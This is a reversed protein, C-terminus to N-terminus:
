FFSTIGKVNEVVEKGCGSCTYKVDLFLHPMDDFFKMIKELQSENLHEIWNKIEENSLNATPFTETENFVMDICKGVLILGKEISNKEDINNLIELTPYKMKVGTKTKEDLIITKDKEESIKVDDLNIDVKNVTDCETHTLGVEINQDASIKRIELFLFEIEGTTLKDIEVGDTICSNILNKIANQMEKEDQSEAAIMLVKEEGVLYPRIEYENNTPTYKVIKRQTNILPLSM